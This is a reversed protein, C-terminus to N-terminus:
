GLGRKRGLVRIRCKYCSALALISTPYSKNGLTARGIRRERVNPPNVARLSEPLLQTSV